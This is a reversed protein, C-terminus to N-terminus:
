ADVQALLSEAGAIARQELADLERVKADHDEALKRLAADVADETLVTVEKRVPAYLALLKSQHECWGRISNWAEVRTRWSVGPDESEAIALLANVARDALERQEERHENVQLNPYDSCAQKYIQYARQASIDFVAGIADWPMRTRRLEVIRGKRHETEDPTLTHAPM